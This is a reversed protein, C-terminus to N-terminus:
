EWPRDNPKSQCEITSQRLLIRRVLVCFDAFHDLSGACRLRPALSGQHGRIKSPAATVGFAHHVLVLPFMRSARKQLRMNEMLLDRDLASAKANWLGTSDRCRAALLFWRPQRHQKCLHDSAIEALAMAEGAQPHKQPEPVCPTLPYRQRYYWHSDAPLGHCIEALCRCYLVTATVLLLLSLTSNLDM